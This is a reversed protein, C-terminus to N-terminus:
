ELYTFNKFPKIVKLVGEELRGIDCRNTKRSGYNSTHPNLLKLFRWWYV